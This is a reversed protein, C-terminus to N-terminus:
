FPKDFGVTFSTSSTDADADTGTSSQNSTTLKAYKVGVSPSIGGYALFPFLLKAGASLATETFARSGIVFDQGGNAYDISGRELSYHQMSGELLLSVLSFPEILVVASVSYQFVSQWSKDELTMDYTPTPVSTATETYDYYTLPYFGLAVRYSFFDLLRTQAFDAYLGAQYIKATGTSYHGRFNTGGGYGYMVSDFDYTTMSGGIGVAYVAGNEMKAQYSLLNVGLFTTDAGFVEEAQIGNISLNEHFQAQGKQYSLLSFYNSNWNVPISFAAGGDEEVSLSLRNLDKEDESAMVLTAVLLLMILKKM